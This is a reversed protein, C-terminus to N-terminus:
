RQAFRALDALQLQGDTLGDTLAEHPVNRMAPYQEVLAKINPALAESRRMLYSDKCMLMPGVLVELIIASAAPGMREGEGLTEAERLLFYFLPTEEKLADPVDLADLDLAERYARGSLGPYEKALEKAVDQGSPLGLAYGRRINRFALSRMNDSADSGVVPDPMRILESALLPDFRKARAPMTGEDVPLLFRWDVVLECPLTSFGITGFAEDFLEIDAHTANAPYANRVLTHGFRYAAVSFEVPMPFQQYRSDKGTNGKCLDSEYFYPFDTSKGDRFRKVEAMVHAYVGVDCIRKLFDEVVVKQYHWRVMTQTAAFRDHRDGFHAGIRDYVKNHLNLFMLQMQSVFLNEDNRPDGILATGRQNRPLDTGVEDCGDATGTILKGFTAEGTYLHPSAEPGFGYVCDLDLTPTRLNPLKETDLDRHLGNIDSQTDLTVDHDVFQAFFIYGAPLQSDGSPTRAGDMLGNKGGLMSAIADPTGPNPTLPSLKPFLKNFHGLAAHSCGRAKAVGHHKVPCSGTSM